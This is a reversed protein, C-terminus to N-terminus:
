LQRDRDRLAQEYEEQKRKLENFENGSYRQNYNWQRAFKEAALNREEDAKKVNIAARRRNGAESQSSSYSGSTKEGSLIELILLIFFSFIGTIIEIIKICCYRLFVHIKAETITAARGKELAFLIDEKKISRNNFAHDYSGQRVEALLENHDNTHKIM